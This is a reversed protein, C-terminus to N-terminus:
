CPLDARKMQRFAVSRQEINRVELLISRDWSWISGLALDVCLFIIQQTFIGACCLGRERLCLDLDTHDLSLIAVDGFLSRLSGLGLDCFGLEDTRLNGCRFVFKLGLRMALDVDGLATVFLELWGLRSTCLTLVLIYLLARIPTGGEYTPLDPCTSSLRECRFLHSVSKVVSGTGESM